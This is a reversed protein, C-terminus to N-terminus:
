MRALLQAKKDSFEDETLIGRDRLGALKELEDALSPTAAATPGPGAPTAGQARILKALEQFKPAQSKHIPIVNPAKWADQKGSKWTSRESGSVGGAAVEFTGSMMSTRVEVSTINRYDFSTVKGGLTQGAMWGVKLIVVRENTVAVCQTDKSGRLKALVVEDPALSEALLKEAREHLQEILNSAQSATETM